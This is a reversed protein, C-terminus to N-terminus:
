LNMLKSVLADFNNINISLNGLNSTVKGLSNEASWKKSFKITQGNGPPRTPLNNIGPTIGKKIKYVLM